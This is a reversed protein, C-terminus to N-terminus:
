RLLITEEPSLAILQGCLLLCHHLNWSLVWPLMHLFISGLPQFHCRAHDKPSVSLNYSETPNIVHIWFKVM